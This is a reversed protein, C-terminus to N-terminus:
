PFINYRRWNYDAARRTFPPRTWIFSSYSFERTFQIDYTKSDDSLLTDPFIGCQRCDMLNSGVCAAGNLKIQRLADKHPCLMMRRHARSFDASDGHVLYQVNFAFNGWREVSLSIRTEYSVAESLSSYNCRHWIPTYQTNRSNFRKARIKLCPCLVIIGPWRCVRLNANDYGLSTHDFDDLPHLKLCAACYKWLQSELAILLETRNSLDREDLGDSYPYEFTPDKLVPGLLLYLRTCSLALCAQSVVQLNSSLEILIESPLDLISLGHIGKSREQIENSQEQVESPQRSNAWKEHSKRKNFILHFCKMIVDRGAMFATSLLRSIM